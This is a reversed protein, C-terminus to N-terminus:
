NTLGKITKIKAAVKLLAEKNREKQERDQKEREFRELEAKTFYGATARDQFNYLNVRPLIWNQRKLLRKKKPMILSPSSKLLPSQLGM